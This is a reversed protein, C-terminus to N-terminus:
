NIKQTKLDPKAYAYRGIKETKFYADLGCSVLIGAASLDVFGDPKVMEDALIVQQISGIVMVTGNLKIDIKEEFKMAIKVAAEAVFPAQSTGQYDESLGVAEFEPVLYRASTQHAKEVYNHHVFNLTYSKTDLINQLTDRQVTDPRSMLGFLPPHAGLHILSNFIAVNPKGEKSITGVLVAQRFGALSNIFATRYRQDLSEIETRTINM